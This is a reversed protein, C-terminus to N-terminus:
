AWEDPTLRGFFSHPHKTCGEPGGATFRGILGCLREREKNLDREDAVILSKATPSNRRFPEDNRFVMPKVMRGIIRGLLMREPISDGIAWEMAASCHAQAQAANMTGWLPKTDPRLQGIRAKVEEATAAEFLNKM